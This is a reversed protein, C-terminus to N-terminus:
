DASQRETELSVPRRLWPQGWWTRARDKWKWTGLGDGGPSVFKKHFGPTYITCRLWEGGGRWSINKKRGLMRGNMWGTRLLLLFHDKKKFHWFLCKFIIKQWGKVRTEVPDMLLIVLIMLSLSAIFKMMRFLLFMWVYKYILKDKFHTKFCIMNKSYCILSEDWVWVLNNTM